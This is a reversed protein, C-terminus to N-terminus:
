NEGIIEFIEEFTDKNYKEPLELEYFKLDNFNEKLNSKLENWHNSLKSEPFVYSYAQMYNPFNNKQLLSPIISVYFENKNNALIKEIAVETELEKFNILENKNIRELVFARDFKVPKTEWFTSTKNDNFSSSFFKLKQLKSLEEKGVDVTYDFLQHYIPFSYILKNKIDIIVKDDGLANYENKVGNLIISSKLSGAMGFLLISSDKKTIAGAHALFYGKSDLILEIVPKLAVEFALADAFFMSSIGKINGEFNIDIRDDNLGRIELKWSSSKGNDKLYLYNEDLYYKHDVIFKKNLNPKFEGINLNIDVQSDELNEVEFYSLPNNYVNEGFFRKKTNIKIKLLDHISYNKTLTKDKM